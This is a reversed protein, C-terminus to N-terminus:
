EKRMKRIMSGWSESIAAKVRRRIGSFPDWSPLYTDQYQFLSRLEANRTKISKFREMLEEDSMANYDIPATPKLIAEIHNSIQQCCRIRSSKTTEHFTRELTRMKWCARDFHYSDIEYAYSEDYWRLTKLTKQRDM